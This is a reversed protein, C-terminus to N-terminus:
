EEKCMDMCSLLIMQRVYLGTKDKPFWYPGNKNKSPKHIFLEPLNKKRMQNFGLTEGLVSCFGRTESISEYVPKLKTYARKYIKYRQQKTLNSM